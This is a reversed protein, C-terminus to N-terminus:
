RNIAEYVLTQFETELEPHIGPELQMRLFLFEGPETVPSTAEAQVM